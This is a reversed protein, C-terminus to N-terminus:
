TRNELQEATPLYFLTHRLVRIQSFSRCLQSERSSFRQHCSFGHLDIQVERGEFTNSCCETEHRCVSNEKGLSYSQFIKKEIRKSNEIM